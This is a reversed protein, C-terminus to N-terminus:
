YKINKVEAEGLQKPSEVRVIEAGLLEVANYLSQMNGAGYDLVWVRPKSEGNVSQMQM